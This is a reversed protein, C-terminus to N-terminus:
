KIHMAVVTMEHTKTQKNTKKRSKKKKLFSLTLFILFPSFRLLQTNAQTYLQVYLIIINLFIFSVLNKLKNTLIEKTKNTRKAKSQNKITQKNTKNM